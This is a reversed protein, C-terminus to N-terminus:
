LVTPNAGTVDVVNHASTACRVVIVVIVIIAVVARRRVVVVNVVVVDVVNVVVVQRWANAFPIITAILFLRLLLLRNCIRHCYV